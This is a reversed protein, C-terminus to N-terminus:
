LVSAGPNLLIAHPDSGRLAPAPPPRDGDREVPLPEIDTCRDSLAGCVCTCSSTPDDDPYVCSTEVTILVANLTVLEANEVTRVVPAPAEFTRQLLRHDEICEPEVWLPTAGAPVVFNTVGSGDNCPWVDSEPDTGGGWRLRISEIRVDDCREIRQGDPAELSWSLEVAGGEAEDCGLGSGDACGPAVCALTIALRAIRARVARAGASNMAADQGM